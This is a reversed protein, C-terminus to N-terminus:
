KKYYNSAFTSKGSGPTGLCAIFYNISILLEKNITIKGNKDENILKVVGVNIENNNEILTTNNKEVM